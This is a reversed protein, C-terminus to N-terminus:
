VEVCDGEGVTLTRSVRNPSFVRIYGPGPPAVGRLTGDGTVHISQGELPGLVCEVLPYRTTHLAYLDEVTVARYRDGVNKIHVCIMDSM